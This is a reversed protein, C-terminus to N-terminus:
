STLRLREATAYNDNIFVVTRGAREIMSAASSARNGSACHVWV